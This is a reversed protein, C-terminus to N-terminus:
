FRLTASSEKCAVSNQLEQDASGETHAASPYLIKMHNAGDLEGRSGPVEGQVSHSLTPCHM